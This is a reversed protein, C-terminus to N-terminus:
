HCPELARGINQHFSPHTAPTVSFGKFAKGPAWSAPRSREFVMFSPANGDIELNVKLIAERSDDGASSDAICSAVLTRKHDDANQLDAEVSLRGSQQPGDDVRIVRGGPFLSWLGDM